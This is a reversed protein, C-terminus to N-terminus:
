VYTGATSPAIQLNRALAVRSIGPHARVRKLIESEISATQAMSFKICFFESDINLNRLRNCFDGRPRFVFSSIVFSSDLVFGCLKLLGEIQKDGKSSRYESNMRWEDNTM